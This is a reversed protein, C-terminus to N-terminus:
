VTPKVQCTPPEGQRWGRGFWEPEQSSEEVPEGGAVRVRYFEYCNAGARMVNWCSDVYDLRFPPDPRACIVSGRFFWSGTGTPRQQFTFDLRGNGFHQVTWKAGTRFEGEIPKGIMEARIAEESMWAPTASAASLCGVLGALAYPIPLRSLM